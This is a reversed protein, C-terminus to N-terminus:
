PRFSDPGLAKIYGGAGGKRCSKRGHAWGEAGGPQEYVAPYAPSVPPTPLGDAIALVPHLSPGSRTRQGVALEMGRPKGALASMCSGVPPVRLGAVTGAVSLTGQAGEPDTRPAKLCPFSGATSALFSLMWPTSSPSVGWTGETLKGGGM